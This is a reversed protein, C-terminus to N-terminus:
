KPSITFSYSMPDPTITYEPHVHAGWTNDGGVGMQDNDINIWILDRKEISGGHKRKIDFPVYDIDEQTFHWASVNLPKEGKILIGKEDDNV